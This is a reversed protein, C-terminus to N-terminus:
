HRYYWQLSTDIVCLALASISCQVAQETICAQLAPAPM